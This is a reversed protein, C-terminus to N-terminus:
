THSERPLRRVGFLVGREDNGIVTVVPPGNGEAVTQIRFGEKEKGLPLAPIQERLERPFSDILRAPGVAIVPVNRTPWRLLINWEVQSRKRVEEILLRTAKNEPGSLGDPVVVVAKSLDIEKAIADDAQDLGVVLVVALMWSKSFPRLRIM